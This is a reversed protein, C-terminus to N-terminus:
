NQKFYTEMDMDDDIIVVDGDDEIEEGTPVMFGSYTYLNKSENLSSKLFEEKSSLFKEVIKKSCAICGGFRKNEFQTLDFSSGSSGRIFHAETGIVGKHLNNIYLEVALASAQMSVGPRSVTCQQDMSRNSVTDVPTVYDSCFFCGYDTEPNNKDVLFVPNLPSDESLQRFDSPTHDAFIKRVEEAGYCGHQVIIFSEYGIGISIVNKNYLAGITTPFYRAERSDFVNFIIDHTTILDELILLDEFASDLMNETAFHGPMPIQMVVFKTKCHPAIKGVMKAAAEAKFMGEGKENFCDTTFLSQRALNSYSVRGCDLFTLHRFGYGLLIRGINCGLTGSGLILAKQTFIKDLNLNPELRWKMLKLNLNAQEEILSEPSLFSKLNLDFKDVVKKFVKEKKLVSQKDLKIKVSLVALETKEDPIAIANRVLYFEVSDSKLFENFPSKETENFIFDLSINSISNGQSSDCFVLLKEFEGLILGQSKEIWEFNLNITIKAEEKEMKLQKAYNKQSKIQIFSYTISFTKHNIHAIIAFSPKIEPNIQSYLEIQKSLESVFTDHQSEINILIIFGNQAISHFSNKQLTYPTPKLSDGDFHLYVKDENFKSCNLRAILPIPSESLKTEDLKKFHIAKWFTVDMLPSFNKIKM